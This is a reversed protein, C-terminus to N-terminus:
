PESFSRFPLKLKQNLYSYIFEEIVEKQTLHYLRYTKMNRKVYAYFLNYALFLILLVAFTANPHHHFNHTMYWNDKLDKIGNNEIGWKAHVIRRIIDAKAKWKPLTTACFFLNEDAGTREIIKFGRLPIDWDISRHLSPIEYIEYSVGSKEDYGKIPFILTSLAQIEKYLHTRENKVRIVVDKDLGKAKSVFPYNIYLADLTVVDVFRRGYLSIVKKLLRKAATLEGEHGKIQDEKEKTDKRKIEEASLISQVKTGVKQALVARHVYHTVTGEKTEIHYELCEDCHICDSRFYETGDLAVIHLGGITDNYAKNEKLKKPVITLEDELISTKIHELGYCITNQCFISKDDPIFKFIKERMVERSLRRFSGWRLLLCLFVCCFISEISVDCDKRSDEQAHITKLFGYVKSIHRIFKGLRLKEVKYM